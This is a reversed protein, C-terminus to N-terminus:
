LKDCPRIPNRLLASDKLRRRDLKGTTTRPLSETWFYAKPIKYSALRSRLFTSLADSTPLSRGAVIVAVLREGWRSDSLGVAAAQHVAPHSELAAEVEVPDINEGGSVVVDDARGLLHLNGAPDLRARDRTQLWGAASLELDGVGLYGSMRAPTHIALLQDVLKLRVGPMPQGCGQTPPSQPCQTAVQGCTESLGYTALAPIGRARAEAILEPSTHAGGILVARLRPPAPLRRLALLADRLMTPVWASHTVQEARMQRLCREADFPASACLSLAHNQDICRWIVSLGGVHAPPLALLWRDDPRPALRRFHMALAARVAQFPLAVAKPMGTSGSTHVIAATIPSAARSTHRSGQALPTAGLPLEDICQAQTQQLVRKREADSWRPHLPVLTLGQHWAWRVQRVTQADTRATFAIRQPFVPETSPPM